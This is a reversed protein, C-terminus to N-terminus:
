LGGGGWWWEGEVGMGVWGVLVGGWGVVVM